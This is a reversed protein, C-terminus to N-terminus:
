MNAQILISCRERFSVSPYVGICKATLLASYSLDVLGTLIRKYLPAGLSELSLFPRLGASRAFYILEGVILSSSTLYRSLSDPPGQSLRMSFPVGMFFIFLVTLSGKININLWKM